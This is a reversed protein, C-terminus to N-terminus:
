MSELYVMFTKSHSLLEQSPIPPLVRLSITKGVINLREADNLDTRLLSEFETVQLFVWIGWKASPDRDEPEYSMEEENVVTCGYCNFCETYPEGRPDGGSKTFFGYTLNWKKIL